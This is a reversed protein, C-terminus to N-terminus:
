DGTLSFAGAPGDYDLRCSALFDRGLNGQHDRTLAGSPMGLVDARVAHMGVIRASPDRLALLLQVQYRGYHETRQSIGVVSERGTPRLGLGRLLREEILTFRAGTDLLMRVLTLPVTVGLSRLSAIEGSRLTLRMDVLPGKAALERSGGPWKATHQM